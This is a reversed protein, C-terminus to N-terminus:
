KTYRKWTWFDIEEKNYSPHYIRKRKWEIRNQSVSIPQLEDYGSWKKGTDPDALYMEIYGDNYSWDILYYVDHAEFDILDDYGEGTGDANIVLIDDDGDQTWVGVMVKTLDDVTPEDDDSCSTFTLGMIVYLAVAALSQLHKLKHKM